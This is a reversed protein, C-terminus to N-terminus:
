FFKKKFNEHRIRSKEIIQNFETESRINDLLVDQAFYPYCFFGKDISLHLTALASEKDGLAAYAQAIKYIAEGDSVGSQRIKEESGKLLAIGEAKKGDISFSFAKGIQAFIQNPTLKYAQEFFEKAETLERLYYHGFGRYFIFYSDSSDELKPLSDIFKRYQRDYFYSNFADNAVSKDFGLAREGVEISEKLMGGYRYAYSLQWNAAAHYPKRDLIKRLQVVADEVRGTDTALKASFLRAELQEPDLELAKDYAAQAKNYEQQGGFQATARSAYCFGLYAWTLSYNPDLDVSKELVEQAKQYNNASRNMLDIGRLCFEYATSNSPLNRKLKEVEAVTLKIELERVIQDAVKTQVTLLKEYKLDLTDSWIIEDNDVDILQANIRLDDGEKIFNGMLLTNVNLEAAVKKPDIDQSRYKNIASSPRLTLSDIYGLKNIVSDALSFSLFDTEPDNKLNRFPVIALTRTKKTAHTNNKYYIYGIASGLSLIFFLSLSIALLKKNKNRKTNLVEIPRLSEDTKDIRDIRDIRDAQRSLEKEVSPDSSHSYSPSLSRDTLNSRTLEKEFDLRQKLSKLDLLMDKITQYREEKDKRLAKIVIRELEPSINPLYQSIPPPEHELVSVIIDSNTAGDFPLKGTVMQYLVIGFSFIDTRADVVQGRAQEPSMYKPTGMIKGAETRVGISNETKDLETETFKALGFDLIKAYGDERLMINGPKIDRHVVGAPHAVALANAIQIAVKLSDKLSIGTAIKQKLTIGDIFETAIFHIGDADGIEYITLINPHNLASATRAEQEFRRIRSPDKIIETPLLKLAVKRGLRSDEALYVEGMGGEGLKRIVQYYSLKQGVELELSISTNEGQTNLSYRSTLSDTFQTSADAINTSELSEFERKLELASHQRNEPLPSLGKYLIDSLKPSIDPRLERLPQALSVTAPPVIGALMEYAVLCIGFIDSRADVANGLFQEPTMYKVTGLLEGHDSINEDEEGIQLLKAISFDLVRVILDGDALEEIMINEPKLDRHVIGQLHAAYLGACIQKVIKLTQKETFRGQREMMTRLSLGEIYEMVIYPVNSSTIGFDTVGVVNPHRIKGLAEAERRFRALQPSDQAPFSMLKLAFTKNLQLHVASFVRGMGGLGLLSDLRYKGDIVTGLAAEVSPM